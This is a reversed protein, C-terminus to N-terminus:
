AQGTAKKAACINGVASTAADPMQRVTPILYVAICQQCSATGRKGVLYQEIDLDLQSAFALRLLTKCDVVNASVGCRRHCTMVLRSLGAHYGAHYGACWGGLDKM